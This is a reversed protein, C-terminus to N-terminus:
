NLFLGIRFGLLFRIGSYNYNMFFSSNDDITGVDGILNSVQIGCGAYFDLLLINNYITQYGFIANFGYRTNTVENEPNGTVGYKFNFSNFRIGYAAYPGSTSQETKLILKHYIDFGYGELDTNWDNGLFFMKKDKGIFYQPGIILWQNKCLHIDLDIRFGNQLTYLPVISIAYKASHKNSDSLSYPNVGYITFSLFCIVIIVPLIKAISKV